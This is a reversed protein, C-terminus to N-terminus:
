HLVFLSGFVVAGLVFLKIGAALNAVKTSKYETLDSESIRQVEGKQFLVWGSGGSSLLAGIVVFGGGLVVRYNVSLGLNRELLWLLTSCAAGLLVLRLVGSAIARITEMWGLELRVVTCAFGSSSAHRVWGCTPAACSAVAVAIYAMKAAPCPTKGM